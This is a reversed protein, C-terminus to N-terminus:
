TIAELSVTNDSNVTVYHGSIPCLFWYKTDNFRFLTLTLVSEAMSIIILKKSKVARKCADFAGPIVAPVNPFTLPTSIALIYGGVM